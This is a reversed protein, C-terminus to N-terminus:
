HGAHTNVEKVTDQEVLPLSKLTAADHFRAMCIGRGVTEDGGFQIVQAQGFIKSSLFALVDSSKKDRWAAPMRSKEPRPAMTLAMSYLLCESPLDEEDWPGQKVTGTEGLQIRTIVETSFEVFSKFDDDHLVILDTKLKEKWYRHMVDDQFVNNGIWATLKSVESRKKTDTEMEFLFEELIIHKDSATLNTSNPVYAKLQKSPEPVNIAALDQCGLSVQGKACLYGMERQFRRLVLPCTAWGFVGSLSRVPFLLLRADTFTAAGGHEAAGNTDPGFVITVDDKTVGKGGKQLEEALDRIAGKVGSGQVMPYNTHRERQIPLDIAAVSSGSGAHLPTETYLFLVGAEKFM